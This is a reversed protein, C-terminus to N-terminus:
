DGGGGADESDDIGFIQWLVEVSGFPREAGLLTAAAEYRSRPDRVRACLAAYTNGLRRQAARHVRAHLAPATLAALRPAHVADLSALWHAFSTLASRLTPPACAPVHALPEQTPPAHPYTTLTKLETCAVAPGSLHSLFHPTPTPTVYTTQLRNVHTAPTTCAQIACSRRM